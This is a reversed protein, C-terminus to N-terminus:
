LSRREKVLNALPKPMKILNEARLLNLFADEGLLDRMAETIFVLLSNMHDAKRTILRKRDVERQYVKIVEQLSLNEKKTTQVTRTNTRIGRGSKKRMEILKRAIMLKKGRLQKSEYAEQLVKQEEQPSTAIKIALTIPIHGAEVASILRDEGREMLKLLETVYETRMGIKAAIQRTDYGQQQLLEIGQLLDPARYQRRALNEVLGMILAQEEGTELVIAPIESQGCALFAELRGQGCVLDYEKGSVERSCRTVTIPRKLGVQTMNHTMEQFIRRNRVRPNLINIRAISIMQVQPPLATM